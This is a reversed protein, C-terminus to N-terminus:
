GYKPAFNLVVLVPNLGFALFLFRCCCGRNSRDAKMQVFEFKSASFEFKNLDFFNKLIFQKITKPNLDALCLFLRGPFPVTLPSQFFANIM